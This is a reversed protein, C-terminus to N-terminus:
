PLTLPLSSQRDHYGQVCELSSRSFAASCFLDLCAGFQNIYDKSKYFLERPEALTGDHENVIQYCKTMIIVKHRPIDFKKLANGIIQESKGNSYM